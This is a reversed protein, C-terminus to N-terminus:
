ALAADHRVDLRDQAAHVPPRFVGDAYRAAGEPRAPHRAPRAGFREDGPRRDRRPGGQGVPRHRLRRSAWRLRPIRGTRSQVVVDSVKLTRTWLDLEIRGHTASGVSARWGDLVADVERAAAYQAWYAVGFYGGVGVILVVVLGVLVKRM